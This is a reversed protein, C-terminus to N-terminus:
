PHRPPLVRKLQDYVQRAAAPLQQLEARPAATEPAVPRASARMALTRALGVLRPFRGIQRRLFYALAPRATVFGLAGRAAGRVAGTLAARLRRRLGAVAHRLRWSLHQRRGRLYKALKVAGRLPKSWRWALSGYIGRLEADVRVGHDAAHAARAEALAARAEAQEARALTGALRVNLAAESRASDDRLRSFRGEAQEARERWGREHAAVWANADAAAQEAAATRRRWETLPHAYHHGEYLQFQDADHPALTLAAALAAQEAAVYYDKQGDRYALTYGAATLAPAADAPTGRLLVIWPRWRRWDMGALVAAEDGNVAINLFHIAGEAHEACVEALTTLGAERLQVPQGDARCARAQEALFGSRESDPADYFTAAASAAAAAGLALNVDAPRAARLRAHLAPAPELNVGRWGRQYFAQTVSGHLPDAAGVDLYFGAEVHRLARWLLVDEFNPAYSIFPM